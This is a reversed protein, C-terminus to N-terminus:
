SKHSIPEDWSKSKFMLIIFPIACSVILGIILFLEFFVLQAHSLPFPPYFGVIGAFTSGAIGMSAVLWMGFNGGPIRFPREVSAEKYRLVIASVFMLVYMVIYLQAALVILIWYSSNVDPMFLFVSALISVITAQIFMMLGPMGHKNEKHLIQPLEGEQAAALLGRVPGAIWTSVGGIAGIAMLLSILPVLPGLNYAELFVKLSAIASSLLNIDDHPIIFAIALTGLVTMTIIVFAALFISRPFTKQPNDVDPAHLAPMEMGGFSLLLGALFALQGINSFDPLFSQWSMEILIPQGTGWWYFGLFIILAGPILTGLIVSVTSIWGSLKMGCYNAITLIWYVGLIVWFTYVKNEALNPSFAFAFSTAVFSLITPYWVVNELWLLWVALFALRHGLAKKVWVFLAGKQPWGSALEAAVFSVPLLFFLAALLVLFISTFGYEATIPWNRISLITAIMIMTLFFVNLPKKEKQATNSQTNM